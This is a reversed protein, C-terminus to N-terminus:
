GTMRQPLMDKAIQDAEDDTIDTATIIRDIVALAEASPDVPGDDPATQASGLTLMRAFSNSSHQDLYRRDQAAATNIRQQLEPSIRFLPSHFSSRDDFVRALIERRPRVKDLGHHKRAHLIHFLAEESMRTRMPKRVDAHDADLLPRHSRYDAKQCATRPYLLGQRHYHGYHKHFHAQVSSSACKPMGVHVYVQTTVLSLEAVDM